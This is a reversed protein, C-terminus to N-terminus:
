DGATLRAGSTARRADWLTDDKEFRQGIRINLTTRADFSEM